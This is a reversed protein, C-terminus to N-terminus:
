PVEPQGPLLDPEPGRHGPAGDPEPGSEVPDVHEQVAVPDLGQRGPKVGAVRARRAADPARGAPGAGSGGADPSTMSTSRVTFAEPLTLRPSWMM